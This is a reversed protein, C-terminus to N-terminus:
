IHLLLIMIIGFSNKIEGASCHILMPPGHKDFSMRVRRIFGILATAFLPVGHDPWSVFYYHMVELPVSDEQAEQSCLVSLRQSRYLSLLTCKSYLLKMM